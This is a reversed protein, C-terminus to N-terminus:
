RTASTAARQYREVLETARALDTPREHLAADAQVALADVDPDIEAGRDRKAQVMARLAKLLGIQEQRQEEAAYLQDAAASWRRLGIRAPGYQGKEVTQAINDIWERLGAVGAPDYGGAREGRQQRAQSRALDDRVSARERETSDLQQQLATLRQQLVHDLDAQGGLPDDLAERRTSQLVARFTDVANVATPGLAQARQALSTLQNEASKLKPMLTAMVQDYRAVADRAAAFAQTMIQVLQQLTLHSQSVPDDLLNRQALPVQAAPLPIVPGNLRRDIDRVTENTNSPLFRRISNRELRAKAVNGALLEYQDALDRAALIPTVIETQTRGSLSLGTSIQVYSPAQQLLDLNTKVRSVQDEWVALQRDIEELTPRPATV